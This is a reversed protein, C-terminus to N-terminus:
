GGDLSWHETKTFWGQPDSLYDYSDVLTLYHTREEATLAQYFAKETPSIAEEGRSRYFSYSRDEMNMATKIAELESSDSKADKGLSEVAEKFLNRLSKGHKFTTEVEPWGQRGVVKEHLEKIVRYHVDEQEALHQFLKRALENTSQGGSKLYFEKGDIEMQLATQLAKASKQAEENM